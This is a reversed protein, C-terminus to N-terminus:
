EVRFRFAHRTPGSTRGGEELDLAITWDGKSFASAECLLTIAGTAVDVFQGPERAAVDGQANSVTLTWPGESPVKLRPHVELLFRKEGRELKVPEWYNEKELRPLFTHRIVEVAAHPSREAEKACGAM